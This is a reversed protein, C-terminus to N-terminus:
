QCYSTSAECDSWDLSDACIPANSESNSGFCITGNNLNGLSVNFPCDIVGIHTPVSTVTDLAIMRVRYYTYPLLQSTGMQYTDQIPSYGVGSSDPDEFVEQNADVDDINSPPCELPAFEFYVGRTGVSLIPNVSQNVAVDIDIRLSEEGGCGWFLFAIVFYGTFTWKRMM